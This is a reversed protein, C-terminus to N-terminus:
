WEVDFHQGVIEIGTRKIEEIKDFTQSLFDKLEQCAEKGACNLVM